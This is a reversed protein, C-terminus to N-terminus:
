ITVVAVIPLKPTLLSVAPVSVATVVDVPLTNIQFVLVSCDIVLRPAVVVLVMDIAFVATLTLLVVPASVTAPPTPMPPVTYM